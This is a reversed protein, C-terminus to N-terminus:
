FKGLARLAHLITAPDSALPMRGDTAACLLEALPMTGIAMDELDGSNPDAVRRCDKALFMHFTGGGANAHTIAAGLCTWEESRYGTEELLERQAAAQPEEGDERAGAPLTLIVRGAGHKYHRECLVAGDPTQAFICVYPQSTFRLYNEVERGDPLRVRQLSVTLRTGIRLIEEEGLVTWDAMGPAM